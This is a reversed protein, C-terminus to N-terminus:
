KKNNNRMYWAISFIIELIITAFAGCVFEPIYM